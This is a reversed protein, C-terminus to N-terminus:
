SCSSAVNFVATCIRCSTDCICDADVRGNEATVRGNEATVRAAEARRVAAETDNINKIHGAIRDELETFENASLCCLLLDLTVFLFDLVRNM